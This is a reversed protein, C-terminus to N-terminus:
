PCLSRPGAGLTIPVNELERFNEVQSNQPTLLTQDGIRVNGAPTITNGMAIAEVFKM